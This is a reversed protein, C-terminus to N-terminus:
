EEFELDGPLILDLPASPEAVLRRSQNYIAKELTNRALRGNGASRSDAAQRRQYYGLLPFTCGDDLRYGRGAALSVTIDVLQSATYDPFEIQNPFRSALGSNATLFQQMEKTYGALIVVLDERHDEMGKVLTDIAELGFSDQQGRYLSYAEDIFLVGGLASEIVSNTLPATHGTYRGVLDGRSVEVLQGGRLAGIAKLYRAVLRAITTKGTGPNGTFIMHMSLSATKMGAAARRKQVQVNDALGFVYSKVEELGVLADLERRVQEAGGDYVPPLLEELPPPCAATSPFAFCATKWMWCPPAGASATM